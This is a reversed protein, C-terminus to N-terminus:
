KERTFTATGGIQSSLTLQDNKIKYELTQENTKYDLRIHSDDVIEMKGSVVPFSYSSDELFEIYDGKEPIGFIDMGEDRLEVIWKGFLDNQASKNEGSEPTSCGVSSVVVAIIILIIVMKSSKM